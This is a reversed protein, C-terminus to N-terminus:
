AVLIIKTSIRTFKPIKPENKIKQNIPYLICYKFVREGPIKKATEEVNANFKCLVKSTVNIFFMKCYLIKIGKIIM